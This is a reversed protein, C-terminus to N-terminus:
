PDFWVYVFCGGYRRIGINAPILDHTTLITIIDDNTMGINKLAGALSCLWEYRPPLKSTAGSLLARWNQPTLKGPDINRLLEFSADIDFSLKEVVYFNDSYKLVKPIPLADVKGQFKVYYDHCMRLMKGPLDADGRVAIWKVVAGGVDFVIGHNGIGVVREWSKINIKYFMSTVLCCFADLESLQETVRLERIKDAYKGSYYM